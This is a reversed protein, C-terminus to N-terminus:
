EPMKQHLIMLFLILILTTLTDKEISCRGLGNLRQQLRLYNKRQKLYRVNSIFLIFISISNGHLPWRLYLRLHGPPLHVHGPLVPQLPPLGAVAGDRLSKM